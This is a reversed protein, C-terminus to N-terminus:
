RNAEKVPTEQKGASCKEMPKSVQSVPSCAPHIQRTPRQLYLPTLRIIMYVHCTWSHRDEIPHHLQIGLLAHQAFVRKSEASVNM